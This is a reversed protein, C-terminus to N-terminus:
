STSICVLNVRIDGLGQSTAAIRSLQSLLALVFATMEPAVFPVVTVTMAAVLAM